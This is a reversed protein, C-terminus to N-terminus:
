IYHLPSFLIVIFWIFFFCWFPPAFILNTKRNKFLISSCCCNCDLSVFTSSFLIIFLLPHFCSFQKLIINKMKKKTRINMRNQISHNKGSWHTTQPQQTLILSFASLLNRIIYDHKLEVNSEIFLNISKVQPIRVHVFAVLVHKEVFITKKKRKKLM